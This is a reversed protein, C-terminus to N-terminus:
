VLGDILDNEFAITGKLDNSYHSTDPMTFSTVHEWVVTVLRKFREMEDTSFELQLQATENGIPTIFDIAGSTVTYDHYDRSNEVLLKYFMLQQRYKHHSLQSSSWATAPKSTKYDIVRITKEATSIDALDVAGALRIDGFQPKQYTLNLEPKQTRSFDEARNKLYITLEEHGKTRYSEREGAEFRQIDLQTDFITLANDISISGDVVFQAHLQKLTDHVANGYKTSASHAGPFRLLGDIVFNNPGGYQLDLFHTLGTASLRYTELRPKLFDALEITPALIPQYWATAALRTAQQVNTAHDVEIAPWDALFRAPLTDKGRDDRLSYSITLQQKARTLAVYFLRLREDDSTDKRIMALNAPYSINNRAGSASAKWKTETAGTIYVHAFELGKSKHATMLHVAGEGEGVQQTLQIPTHTSLHLDVCELFDALSLNAGPKFGTIKERITRLAELYTVYRQPDNALAQHSFFYAYLTEPQISETVGIIRDIMVELSSVSSEKVLEIMWQRWLEFEPITEMTDLWRRREDYSLSSLKWISEASFGWAPHAIIEPLLANAEDHKGHALLIILRAVKILIVIPDLVLVNDRREYAVPINQEALYPLVTQLESHKIMLIAISSPDVGTDIQARIQEALWARERVADALEYLQPTTKLDSQAVLPVNLEPYNTAFREESQTIVKRSEDLIGQTSRYNKTLIIQEAAPYTEAFDRINSLDAGQFSYIAQDPDGVVFVNPRDENVPNNTLSHLIRLQALNTDQFEDVMFYQYKEQLNYRLDDHQELAHVVQLIMDDFDYRGETELIHLYRTYIDAVARLKAQQESAKLIFRGSSDKKLWQNRWTTLPPTVRPNDSALSLADKLSQTLLPLYAPIEYHETAPKLSELQDLAVTLPELITKKITGEFLPQLIEQAEDINSQNTELIELLESSNLGAKKLEEIVKKIDNLYTFEGNMTSRLAHNLPLDSLISHLTQYTFLEDAPQFVAGNYFFERNQSIVESGFSHFTHIAVKYADAGIIEVLRQRMAVAGSETFTLCLINEPQTDTKQLINAVRMSLLETKGTGPGAVVMVPGDIAEVARRQEANLQQYRGQYTM